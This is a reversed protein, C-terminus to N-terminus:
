KIGIKHAVIKLLKDLNKGTAASFAVDAKPGEPEGQVLDAKSFATIEKKRALKPSFRELEGRVAQYDRAPDESSADILHLLVRTREIHRLFKHGLGKGQAAGEILGPLDAFVIPHGFIRAVGLSPELTTFPYDAVKPRAASVVSLLTSKGANPLGIIGVDAILKLELLLDEQEGAGGPKFQRPAQNVSNAFHVNGLGGKGGRVVVFREGESKIDALKRRARPDYIQTGLPVHLVLDKGKKGHRRNKGGSSGDEAKFKKARLFEVLGHTQGSGIIIISGGDGGDGGDPGGRDVYKERHFSVAGDGGRGAGFYVKTEDVLM